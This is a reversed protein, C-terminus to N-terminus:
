VQTTPKKLRVITDRLDQAKFPKVLYADAGVEYGSRIEEEQAAASLIAVPTSGREPHSKVVRCLELGSMLPLLADVLVIDPFRFYFERLGAFADYAEVVEYLTEPLQLRILALTDLDDEVILVRVRAAAAAPQGDPATAPAM